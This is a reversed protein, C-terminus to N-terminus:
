VLQTSAPVGIPGHLRSLCAGHTSYAAAHRALGIAHSSRGSLGRVRTDTSASLIVKATGSLGTGSLGTGSPGRVQTDTNASLIVKAKEAETLIRTAAQPLLGDELTV